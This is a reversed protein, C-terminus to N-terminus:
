KMVMNKASTLVAKLMSELPKDLAHGTFLMLVALGLAAAVLMVVGYESTAQGRDNRKFRTAFCYVSTIVRSITSM